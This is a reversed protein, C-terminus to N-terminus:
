ACCDCRRRGRPAGRDYVNKNRETRRDIRRKGGASCVLHPMACSYKEHASRRALPARNIFRLDCGDALSDCLNYVPASETCSDSFHRVWFADQPAGAPGFDVPLTIRLRGQGCITRPYSQFGESGFKIRIQRNAWTRLQENRRNAFRPSLEALRTCISHVLDELGDGTAASCAVVPTDPRASLSLAGRLDAVTQRSVAGMDSKTVVVLDPVEMIGAKMYQLADGSGPQALFATVDAIESIETESQGIGVTEVIVLDFLARLLITAPYTIEAVGGLRDRAAMSRVFVGQDAPDTTLRTRDGLLAGGTVASSPDVAIVAITKREARWAKVLENTLTSKGVGPPGTLGLVAGKPAAQAADLLAVTADADPDTELGAIAAAVARKGIRRVEELPDTAGTVM